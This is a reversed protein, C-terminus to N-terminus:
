IITERLRQVVRLPRARRTPSKISSTGVQEPNLRRDHIPKRHSGLSHGPLLVTSTSVLFVVVAAWTFTYLGGVLAAFAMGNFCLPKLPAFRVGGRVVNDIRDSRIRHHQVSAPLEQM